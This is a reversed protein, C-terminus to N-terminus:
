NGGCASFLRNIADPVVGLYGATKPKPGNETPSFGIGREKKEISM